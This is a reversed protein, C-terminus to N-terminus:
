IRESQRIKQINLVSPSPGVPVHPVPKLLSQGLRLGHRHLRRDEAAPDVIVQERVGSLDLHSVRQYQSRDRRGLLLVVLDIGVFDSVPQSVVEKRLAVHHGRLKGHGLSGM